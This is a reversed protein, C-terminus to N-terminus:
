AKKFIVQDFKVYGAKTGTLASLCGPQVEINVAQIQVLEWGQGAEFNILAQLQNSVEAASQNGKIKGFSPTFRCAGRLRAPAHRQYQRIAAIALETM